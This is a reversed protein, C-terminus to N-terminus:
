KDEKGLFEDLIYGDGFSRDSGKLRFQVCKVKLSECEIGECSGDNVNTYSVSVNSPVETVVYDHCQSTILTKGTKINKVPYNEGHHGFPMKEVKCGLALAIVLHGTCNGCVPVKGVIEKLTDITGPANEPNGPGSTVFVVDPKISMIEDAKANAPFVTVKCNRDAIAKLTSEKTGLDIVAVNTDGTESYQYTKDTTTRMIVDSNDLKDMRAKADTDSVEGMVIAGKMTGNDRIARTLARTDIGCLGVVGQKKLFEDITMECRFNSPFDCKERVVVATMAAKKSENDFSNAGYNGLLPFTLTVIQGAFAPDTITEQYGGMGTTFVVEGVVEREDGFLEGAFRMGNELILEAKM